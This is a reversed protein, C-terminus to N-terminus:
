DIYGSQNRLVVIEFEGDFHRLFGTVALPQGIAVGIPYTVLDTLFDAGSNLPDIVNQPLFVNISGTGGFAGEDDEGAVVSGWLSVSDVHTPGDTRHFVESV